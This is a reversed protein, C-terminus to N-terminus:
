TEVSTLVQKGEGFSGEEVMVKGSEPKFLRRIVGNLVPSRM